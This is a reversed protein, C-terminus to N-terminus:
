VISFANKPREQIRVCKENLMDDISQYAESESVDSEDKSDMDKVNTM